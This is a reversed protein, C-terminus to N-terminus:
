KRGRSDGRNPSQGRSKKETVPEVFDVLNEWGAKLEMSQNYPIVLEPQVKSFLDGTDWKGNENEDVIIRMSYAGPELKTLKILTDTISQQYVTDKKITVQLIYKNDYFKSPIHINLIGYDDDSKTRFRYKSPLSTTGSTDTAFDKLVRLTYVADMKWNTGILLVNDVTDRQVTLESEVDIEASDYSLFIKGIDYTDIPHNYTIKVSENIDFSRKEINSTDVRVSYLLEERDDVDKRKNKRTPIVLTSDVKATDLPAIEKFIRLEIPEGPSDIPVVISDIFGILENEGDYVLNENEDKLAYIRYRKRPLGPLIFTGGGGVTTVYHPKKKVVASDNDVADYLLITTGSAPLGTAADIVFGNLLLTDFFEGTSFIYNYNKFANGEHLDKIAEGFSIRYTTSDKILTDPIQLRVKKGYVLATVPFPIVPSIQIQKAPENLVIFEDFKLEIESVKTNLQSDAPYVSLLKPPTTDKKGGSPPVINACSQFVALLM